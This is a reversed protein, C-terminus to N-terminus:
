NPSRPLSRAPSGIVRDGERVDKFVHSGLAIFAGAGILLGNSLVSGPGIWSDHGVTTSGAVIAGAAILVRDGIISGHAVSVLNDTKTNSGIITPKGYFGQGIITGPGIEAGEGIITKGDHLVPLVQTQSKKYEFGPSGIVAGARITSGAKIEVNPYITANAEIVVGPLIKVGHTAISAVLSVKAEESIQNAERNQLRKEALKNYTSFYEFKPNERVIVHKDSDGFLSKLSSSTIVCSINDTELLPKLYKGNDIFTLFKYGPDQGVLGLGLIEPLDLVGDFYSTKLIQQLEHSFVSDVEMETVQKMSTYAGLGVIEIM